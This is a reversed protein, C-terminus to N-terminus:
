SSKIIKIMGNADSKIISRKNNKDLASSYLQVGDPSFKAIITNNTPSRIELAKMDGSSNTIIEASLSLEQQEPTKPKMIGVIKSRKANRTLEEHLFNRLIKGSIPYISDLDLFSDISIKGRKHDDLLKNIEEDTLM